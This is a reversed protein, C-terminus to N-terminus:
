KFSSSPRNQARQLSGDKLCAWIPHMGESPPGPDDSHPPRKDPTIQLHTSSTHAAAHSMHSADAQHAGARTKRPQWNQLKFNTTAMSTSGTLLLRM